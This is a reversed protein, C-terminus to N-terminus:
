FIFVDRRKCRTAEVHRFHDNSEVEIQKNRQKVRKNRKVCFKLHEFLENGRHQIIELVRQFNLIVDYKFLPMLFNIALQKKAIQMIFILKSSQRVLIANLLCILIKTTDLIHLDSYLLADETVAKQCYALKKM